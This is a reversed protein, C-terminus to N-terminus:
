ALCPTEPDMRFLNSYQTTDSKDVILPTDPRLATAQAKATRDLTLPHVTGCVMSQVYDTGGGVDAHGHLGTHEPTKGQWGRVQKPRITASMACCGGMHEGLERDPRAGTGGNRCAASRASSSHPPPESTGFREKMAGSDGSGEM